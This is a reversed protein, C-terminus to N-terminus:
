YDREDEEEMDVSSSSREFEGPAQTGEQGGKLARDGWEALFHNDKSSDRRPHMPVVGAPHQTSGVSPHIAGTDPHSVGM